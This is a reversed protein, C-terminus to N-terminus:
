KKDMSRTILSGGGGRGGRLFFWAILVVAGIFFGAALALMGTRGPGTGGVPVANTSVTDNTAPAANTGSAIAANTRVIEPPRNTRPPPVNTLAYQYAEWNTSVKTGIVVLPTTAAPPASPASPVPPAPPTNEAQAKEPLPPFPPVNVMGPPFNITSGVYKGHQSRLVIVFPQKDAKLQSYRQAFIQNIGDDYPTGVCPTAGDCFILVTLRPSTDVVQDLLRMLAPFNNTKAYSQRGIFKNLEAAINVADDPNWRVLPFRGTRLENNFTWVGVTDGAHLEGRLGFALIQNVEAQTSKVFPKMESSTSFVLLVRGPLPPDEDRGFGTAAALLLLTMTQLFKKMTM